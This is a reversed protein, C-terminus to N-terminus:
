APSVITSIMENHKDLVDTEFSDLYIQTTQESEHGLAESIVATPVGLYKSITAYSHRSVYSTIHTELGCLQSVEKMTRNYRQLEEKVNRYQLAMDESKIVPLIYDDKSKGSLYKDFIAQLPAVIKIDYDKKTKRRIYAIRGKKIDSVKLYALDIFSAGMLFFSILFYDKARKQRDTQPVFDIIAKLDEQRIARKKTKQHEITYGHRGFPYYEKLSPTEKIAKNFLARLTRLNVSLGNISNKRGLYWVEYKELWEADVRSFPIDETIDKLNSNGLYRAISNHMTKYVEANGIKNRERLRATTTRCFSLVNTPVYKVTLRDKLNKLSIRHLIGEDDLKTLTALVKDKQTQLIKNIRTVSSAYTKCNSKIFGKSTNWESSLVSYGTSLRLPKRNHVVILKIPYTKNKKQRRTDLELYVSAM